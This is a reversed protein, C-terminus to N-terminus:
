YEVTQHRVIPGEKLFLLKKEFKKKMKLASTPASPTVSETM